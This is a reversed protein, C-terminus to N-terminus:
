LSLSIRGLGLERQAPDPHGEGSQRHSSGKAQPPLLVNGHLPYAGAPSGGDRIPEPDGGPLPRFFPYERVYPQYIDYWTFNAVAASPLGAQPSGPLCLPHHRERDRRDGPPPLFEVEAELRGANEGALRLYAELTERKDVTVSDKQICGCDFQAPFIEFPKELEERFFVEPVATRFDSPRKTSFENGISPGYPM